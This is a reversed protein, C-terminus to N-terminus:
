ITGDGRLCEHRMVVIWPGQVFCVWSEGDPNTDRAGDNSAPREREQRVINPPAVAQGLAGRAGWAPSVGGNDTMYLQEEPGAAGVASNNLNRGAEIKGRDDLGVSDLLLLIDKEMRTFAEHDYNPSDEGGATQADSGSRSDQPM